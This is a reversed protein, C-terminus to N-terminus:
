FEPRVQGLGHTTQWGVGAYFAFESLLGILRWLEPLREGIRYTFKGIFGVTYYDGFDVRRTEGRWNSLLVIEDILDKLQGIPYPSFTDWLALLSGFVYRPLPFPQEFRGVRFTTPTIFHLTVARPPPLQGWREWMAMYNDQGAEPHEEKTTFVATIYFVADGIRVGGIDPTFRLLHESVQQTLGTLRWTYVEHPDLILESGERVWANLLPSVTFPKYPKAEHLAKALTPDRRLFLELAAAYAFTGHSVPLRVRDIPKLNMVIAILMKM